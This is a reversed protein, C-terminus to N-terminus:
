AHSELVLMEDVSQELVILSDDLDTLERTVQRQALALHADSASRLRVVRSLLNGFSCGISELQGDIRQVAQQIACYSELEGQKQELAQEYLRRAVADTTRQLKLELHSAQRQLEAPQAIELYHRLQLRKEALHLCRDLLREIQEPSFTFPTDLSLGGLTCEAVLQEHLSQIKGLLERTEPDLSRRLYDLRGARRMWGAQREETRVSRVFNPDRALFQVVVVEALFGFLAVPWTQPQALSLASGTLLALSVPTVIARRLVRTLLQERTEV